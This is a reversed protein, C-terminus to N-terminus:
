RAWADSRRTPEWTPPNVGRAVSIWAGIVAANAAVASAAAGGVRRLVGRRAQSMATLWALLGVGTLALATPAPALWFSAGVAALAWWPALWRMVKHSFLAWAFAPDRRPDLLGRFCLLTALGRTVTRRKRTWERAIGSNSPVYCVADRVSVSRYGLRRAILPAAFDRSVGGPLVTRQIVRRTAYLCGSAGVIGTVRSELERVFMEYGVYAAEDRWGAAGSRTRAATSVDRGSAVGVTGDDLAAVLPKLAARDVIVSVDTNVIIDGRARAAAANEAVTKGGRQELRLLEVGRMAYAAVIADTADTSADSAVLIHRRDPPYDLALLAELAAAITSASNHAVLCITVLPWDRAGRDGPAAPLQRRLLRASAALLAPYGAYTYVWWALSTGLLVAGANV